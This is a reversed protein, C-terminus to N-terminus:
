RSAPRCAFPAPVAGSPFLLQDRLTGLPMFPVQPLFFLEHDRPATISGSGEAWLGSIARMLSSKGCGSQGMILLSQKDQLRVDLGQAGSCMNCCSHAARQWQWAHLGLVDTHLAQLRGLHRTASGLAGRAHGSLLCHM